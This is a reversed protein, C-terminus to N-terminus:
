TPDLAYIIKRLKYLKKWSSSGHLNSTSYKLNYYDGTPWKQVKQRTKTGSFYIEVIVGRLVYMMTLQKM